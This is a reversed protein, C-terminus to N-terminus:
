IQDFQIVLSFCLPNISLVYIPDCRAVAGRLSRFFKYQGTILTSVMAHLFRSKRNWFGRHRWYLVYPIPQFVVKLYKTLLKVQRNILPANGRFTTQCVCVRPVGYSEHLLRSLERSSLWNWRHFPFVSSQHAVPQRCDRPCIDRSNRSWTPDTYFYNKGRHWAM